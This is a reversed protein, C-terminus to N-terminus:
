LLIKTLIGTLTPGNIRKFGKSLLENSYVASVDNCSITIHNIGGDIRNIPSNVVVAQGYNDQAYGTVILSVNEGLRQIFTDEVDKTPKYVITMHDAYVTSHRPPFTNLLTNRSSDTLKIAIYKTNANSQEEALIHYAYIKM